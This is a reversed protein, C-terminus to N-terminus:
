SSSTQGLLGLLFQDVSTQKVGFTKATATMEIISDDTDVTQTNDAGGRLASNATTIVVDVGACAADLTARSKLDGFSIQAGATELAQWSSAERALIRVTQDTALLRRTILGGLQGTAGVVLIMLVWQRDNTPNNGGGALM